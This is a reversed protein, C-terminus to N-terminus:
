TSITVSCARSSPSPRISGAMPQVTGSITKFLTTKGAGNPGILGYIDKESIQFSVDNLAQVGGFRKTAGQVVLLSV